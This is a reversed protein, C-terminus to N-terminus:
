DEASADDFGILNWSQRMHPPMPATVDIVGKDPHPIIIRRAHMHLRNQIGGAFAFEIQGLRPFDEVAIMGIAPTAKITAGLAETEAWYKPCFM